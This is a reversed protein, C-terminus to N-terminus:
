CREWLLLNELVQEMTRHGIVASSAAPKDLIFQLAARRLERASGHADRLENVRALLSSVKGPNRRVNWEWYPDSLPLDDISSFEGTLYGRKFPGGVLVGVGSRNLDELICDCQTDLLNYQLMIVDVRQLLATRVHDPENEFSYGVARVMGLAQLTKLVSIGVGDEVDQLSPAHILCIDIHDTRLRRLSQRLQAVLRAPEYQARHSVEDYQGLKVCYYVRDRCSAFAEGLLEQSRSQVYGSTDTYQGYVTAADYINVGADLAGRLLTQNERASGSAWRGGGLQWTGFGVTSVDFGTNGLKRYQTV